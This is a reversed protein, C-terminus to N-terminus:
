GVHSSVHRHCQWQTGARHRLDHLPRCGATTGAWRAQPQLFSTGSWAQLEVAARREACMAGDVIDDSRHRHAPRPQALRIVAPSCMVGQLLPSVVRGAPIETLQLDRRGPRYHQWREWIKVLKPGPSASTKRESSIPAGIPKQAAVKLRKSAISRSCAALRPLRASQKMQNGLWRAPMSPPRMGRSRRIRYNRTCAVRGMRLLKRWFHSCRFPFRAEGSM